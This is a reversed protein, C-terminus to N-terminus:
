RNRIQATGYKRWLLISLPIGDLYDLMVEEADLSPHEEIFQLFRCIERFEKSSRILRPINM